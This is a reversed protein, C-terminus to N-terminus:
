LSHSTYHPPSHHPASCTDCIYTTQGQEVLSKSFDAMLFHMLTMGRKFARNTVQGRLNQEGTSIKYIYIWLARNQFWLAINRRTGSCRSWKPPEESIALFTYGKLLNAKNLYVIPTNFRSNLALHGILNCQLHISANQVSVKFLYRNKHNLRFTSKLFKSTWLTIVKQEGRPNSM